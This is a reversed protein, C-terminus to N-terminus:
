VNVMRRLESVMKEPLQNWPIDLIAGQLAYLMKFSIKDPFHTKLRLYSEVAGLSVYIRLIM